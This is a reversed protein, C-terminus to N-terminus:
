WPAIGLVVGYPEQIVMASRGGECVPIYGAEAVTDSAVQRLQAATSTLDLYTLDNSFAIESKAYQVLEATRKELIDAAKLFIDRRASPSKKAWAPFAAQAAKVANRADEVSASSCKWVPSESTPDIVDFTTDTITEAGNIQLPITYDSVNGNTQNQSM